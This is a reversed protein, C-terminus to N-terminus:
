EPVKMFALWKTTGRNNTTHGFLPQRGLIKILQSTPVYVENWKFIITGGPKTVRFCEDLGDRLYQEWGTHPLKGYKVSMYGAANSRMHPPDFVTLYFTNDAFDMHRFDMVEDPQVSFTRANTGKGVKHPDVRRQDIFFALPNNKDFWMMRGGCTADLVLKDTKRGKM